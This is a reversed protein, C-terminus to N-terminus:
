TAIYSFFQVVLTRTGVGRRRHVYPSCSSYGIVAAIAFTIGPALNTTARAMSPSALHLGMFYCYQGMATALSAVFLLAFARSGVDMPRLTFGRTALSGLFLAAATIGQRYAVFVIPRMGLGYATKLAMDVLSYLLQVLVMAVGPKYREAWSRWGGCGAM